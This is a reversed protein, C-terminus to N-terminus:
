SIQGRTQLTEQILSWSFIFNTLVARHVIFTVHLLKNGEVCVTFPTPYSAGRHVSSELERPAAEKLSREWGSCIKKQETFGM